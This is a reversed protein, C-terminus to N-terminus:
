GGGGMYENKFDSIKQQCMHSKTQKFCGSELTKSFPVPYFMQNSQSKPMPAEQKELKDSAVAPVLRLM